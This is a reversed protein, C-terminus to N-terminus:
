EHLQRAAGATRRVFPTRASWESEGCTTRGEGRRTNTSAPSPLLPPPTAMGWAAALADGGVISGHLAITAPTAARQPPTRDEAQYAWRAHVAWPRVASPRSSNAHTCLLADKLLM